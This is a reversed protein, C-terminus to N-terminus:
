STAWHASALDREFVHCRHGELLRKDTRHKSARNASRHPKERQHWQVVGQTFGSEAICDRHNDQECVKKYDRCDIMASKGQVPYVVVQKHAGACIARQGKRFCFLADQLEVTDEHGKPREGSENARDPERDRDETVFSGERFPANQYCRSHANWHADQATKQRSRNTPVNPRHRTTKHHRDKKNNDRPSYPLAAVIIHSLHLNTAVARRNIQWYLNKQAEEIAM